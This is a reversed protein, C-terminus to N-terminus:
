YKTRQTKTTKHNQPTRTEWYDLDDEATYAPPASPANVHTAASSTNRYQTTLAPGAPRTETAMDNRGRVQGGEGIYFDNEIREPPRRREHGDHMLIQIVVDLIPLSVAYLTVWPLFLGVYPSLIFSIAALPVITSMSGIFVESPTDNIELNYFFDELSIILSKGYVFFPAFVAGLMCGLVIGIAIAPYFLVQGLINAFFSLINFILEAIGIIVDALFRIIPAFPTFLFSFFPFFLQTVLAACLDFIPQILYEFIPNLIWHQIALLLDFIHLAKTIKVLLFSALAVGMTMAICSLLLATSQLFISLAFASTATYGLTSVWTVIGFLNVGAWSYCLITASVSLALIRAMLIVIQEGDM